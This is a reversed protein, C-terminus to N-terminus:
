EQGLGDSCVLMGTVQPVSEFISEPINNLFQVLIGAVTNPSGRYFSLDV